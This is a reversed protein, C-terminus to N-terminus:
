PVWDAPVAAGWPANGRTRHVPVPAAVFTRIEDDAASFTFLEALAARSSINKAAMGSVSM